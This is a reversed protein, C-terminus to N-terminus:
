PKPGLTERLLLLLLILLLLMIRRLLGLAITPVLVLSIVVLSL